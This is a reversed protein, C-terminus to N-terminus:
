STGAKRTHIKHLSLAAALCAVAPLWLRGAGATDVLLGGLLAGTASGLHVACSNLALPLPAPGDGLGILRHQQAPVFAWAAIGWGATVALAGAPVAAVHALAAFMVALATLAPVVVRGAGSRDAASGGWWVGALGGIGFAAVAAGLQGPAAALLSPLYTYMGFSATMVLFTVGLAGAVAPSRLPRLRERLTARAPPASGAPTLLLAGVTVAALVAVLGFAARWSLAAALTVGLPAGAVMAASTGALIVGLARGRHAAPVAAVAAAGAAPVYVSAALAAPVRVALLAPFAPAAAALVSLTGFLAMSGLLVRRPPRGGLLASLLVAGIAYALAFVTVTLGATGITVDLDHAIGALLGAVVFMDTGIAFTGAALAAVPLWRRQRGPTRTTRDLVTAM